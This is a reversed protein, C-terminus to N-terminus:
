SVPCEQIQNLKLIWKYDALSPYGLGAYLSRAKKEAAVIRRKSFAKMKEGVTVVFSFEARKPKPDYFHLKVIICRSYCTQCDM